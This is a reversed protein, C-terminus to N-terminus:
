SARMNFDTKSYLPRTIPRAMMMNGLSRSLLRPLVPPEFLGSAVVTYPLM